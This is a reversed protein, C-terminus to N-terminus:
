PKARQAVQVNVRGAGDVLYSSGHPAVKVVVRFDPWDRGELEVHGGPRCAVLRFGQDPADQADLVLDVGWGLDPERRRGELELSEFSSLFQPTLRKSEALWRDTTVTTRGAMFDSAHRAYADMFSIAM